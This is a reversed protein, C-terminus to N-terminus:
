LWGMKHRASANRKKQGKGKRDSAYGMFVQIKNNTKSKRRKIPGLGVEHTTIVTAQQPALDPALALCAALILARGM